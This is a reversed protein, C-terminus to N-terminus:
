KIAKMKEKLEKKYNRSILAKKKKDFTIENNDLDITRVNYLNVIYGRHTKIFRPDESLEKEWQIMTKNTLFSSEKTVLTGWTEEPEKEVFQIESKPINYIKGGRQFQLTEKVTLIRHAIQITKLLMNELNYFKSIFALMLMSSQYDFNKLNDHLTVIIIQSEWDGSSRIERAFDLGSKGPVEIDLIYIKSGSLKKIKSIEKSNYEKVEHIEYAMKSKGIFKEIISFYKDRFKEEDEYIIFNVM